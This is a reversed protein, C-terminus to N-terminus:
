HEDLLSGQHQLLLAGQPHLAVGKLTFELFESVPKKDEFIELFTDAQVCPLISFTQRGRHSEFAALTLTTM